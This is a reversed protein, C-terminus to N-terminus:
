IAENTYVDQKAFSVKGVSLKFSYILSGKPTIQMKSGEIAKDTIKQASDSIFKKDMDAITVWIHNGGEYYESKGTPPTWGTQFKFCYKLKKINWDEPIEGIREIGSSKYREYRKM